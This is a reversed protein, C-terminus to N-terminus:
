PISPMSRRRHVILILAGLGGPLCDSVGGFMDYSIPNEQTGRGFNGSKQANACGELTQEARMGVYYALSMPVADRNTVDVLLVNASLLQSELHEQTLPDIMYHLPNIM